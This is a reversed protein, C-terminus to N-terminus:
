KSEEQIQSLEENAQNAFAEEKLKSEEQIQSLEENAQNAFAEEKLKSEEQIQSLEENAKEFSKKILPLNSSLEDLQKKRALVNVNAGNKSRIIQYTKGYIDGNKFILMDGYSMVERHSSVKSRDSLYVNCLWENLSNSIHNDKANVM